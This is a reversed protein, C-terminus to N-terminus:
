KDEPDQKPSDQTCRLEPDLSCEALLTFMNSGDLSDYFRIMERNFEEKRRVPISIADHGASLLQGNMMLRATRKNGDYFFQNLAGFLFTVIAREHIDPISTLTQIGQDFIAELGTHVPPRHETGAISVMDTRFVGWTLAEERAVLAHLAKFNAANFEFAGTEVERLLEQWSAAQNLVQNADSVLCGGVTIGELLTKVEPFTFPNNELAVTDYVIGELVKRVRFCARRVDPSTSTSFACPDYTFGLSEENIEPTPMSLM